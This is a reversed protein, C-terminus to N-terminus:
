LVAQIFAQTREDRADTFIERGGQEVIEGEHMFVNLDGMEKGFGMEHTVVVMTMGSLALDRMVGLVEGILEPDLASTPEDFFMVEPEMVLARAIAVRQQQGGSLMSPYSSLKDLLGVRRLQEAARLEAEDRNMRKVRRLSLAVNELANLHPFLNFQQFVMGTRRRLERVSGRRKIPEGTVGPGYEVGGVKISGSQPEELLNMTRLLTSKGSGSPGFVVIDEGRRVTLDVGRLVHNNGFWKHVERLEVAKPDDQAAADSESPPSKASALPDGM